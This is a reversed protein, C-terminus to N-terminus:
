NDFWGSKTLDAITKEEQIYKRFPVDSSRNNIWWSASTKSQMMTDIKKLQNSVSSYKEASRVATEEAVKPSYNRMAKKYDDMVAKSMASKGEGITELYDYTVRSDSVVTNLMVGIKENRIENAWAVQKESGSLAPGGGVIRDVMAKTDYGPLKSEIKQRAAMGSGGGRGGM